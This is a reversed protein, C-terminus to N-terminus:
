SFHQINFKVIFYHLTSIVMIKMLSKQSLCIEMRRRMKKLQLIIVQLQILYVGSNLFNGDTWDLKLLKYDETIKMHYWRDRSLSKLYDLIERNTCFRIPLRTYMAEVYRGYM